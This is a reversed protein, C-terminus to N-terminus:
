WEAGQDIWDHLITKQTTTLKKRHNAPPMIEDPDDSFIRKILLSEGAKGPIIVKRIAEERLDLRLKAKRVNTDPGHCSWCNNALIPRVDRNFLIRDSEALAPLTANISMGAVIM